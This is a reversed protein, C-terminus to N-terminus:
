ALLKAARDTGAFVELNKDPLFKRSMPAADLVVGGGITIVPSFQRMIFRDGPLLLAAAGLKLRALVEAGRGAEKSEHLVVQAVTEMTNRHFHVRSQHKLSRPASALLRIKVDIVNAAAFTDPPALMMGRSVSRFLVRRFGTVHFDRIGDEAQFFFFFFIFIIYIFLYM